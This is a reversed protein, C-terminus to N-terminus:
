EFKGPAIWKKGKNWPVRGKAKESMKKKTEESHKKGKFTVFGNRYKEAMLKQRNLKWEDSYCNKLNTNWPLRGKLTNSTKQRAEPTVNLGNVRIYGFGGQGGPCLNYSEECLIVLEKEKANMEEETDFVHLIEKEFNEIGYKDIARKLHKGLGLYGDNLDQTQHKGIYYKGNTKNTTKYITYYTQM